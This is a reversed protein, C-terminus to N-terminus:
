DLYEVSIIPLDVQDRQLKYGVYQDYRGFVERRFHVGQRTFGVKEWVRQARTNTLHSELWVSDVATVAFIYAMMIKTVKTGIGRELMSPHLVIGFLVSSGSLPATISCRGILKNQTNRIVIWQLHDKQQQNFWRKRLEDTNAPFNAWLLTREKYKPWNAMEELDDYSMPRLTLEDYVVKTGTFSRSLNDM